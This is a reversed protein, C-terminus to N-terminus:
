SRQGIMGALIDRLASWLHTQQSASLKKKVLYLIEIDEKELHNLYHDDPLRFMQGEGYLLWDISINYKLLKQIINYSPTRKDKEIKNISPRDIELEDAFQTQNFGLERRMQSFREGINQSKARM